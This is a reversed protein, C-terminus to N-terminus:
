VSPEPRYTALGVCLARWQQSRMRDRWLTFRRRGPAMQLSAEVTLWRSGRWGERVVIAHWRGHERVQWTGRALIRVARPAPRAPRLILSLFSLSILLFSWSLAPSVSTVSCSVLMALAATATARGRHATPWRLLPVSLAGPFLVPAKTLDCGDFLWPDM